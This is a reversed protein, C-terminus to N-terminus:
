QMRIIRGDSLEYCREPLDIYKVELKEYDGETFKYGKYIRLGNRLVVQTETFFVPKYDSMVQEKLKKLELELDESRKKFNSLDAETQVKETGMKKLEDRTFIIGQGPALKSLDKGFYIESQVEQKYSSEAQEVKKVSDKKKTNAHAISQTLKLFYQICYNMGGGFTLWILFVALSIRFFLTFFNKLVFWTVLSLKTRKEYEQLPARKDDVRGGEKEQLSANYSNYFVYYDPTIIFRRSHIKKWRETRLQFEVEFVTKHFDGTFGAKLQYWDAMQIHFLPDRMDEAPILEYRLGARSTLCDNVRKINQTLGEFTCGRHRIEGLFSEWKRIYDASKGDVPIFEHIEDIAIHAYRLDVDKFYEWPGSEERKWSQLVDDPIIKVRDLMEDQTVIHQRQRFPATIKALIGKKFFNCKRVVETAVVDPYVPFNSYHVGQNNILFDDVLFRACRIYTKGTGPAGTTLIIVSAM